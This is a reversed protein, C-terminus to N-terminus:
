IDGQSEFEIPGGLVSIQENLMRLRRFLSEASVQQGDINYDLRGANDRLAVLLNTRAQMLIELDTAM